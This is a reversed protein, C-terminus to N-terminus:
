IREVEIGDRRMMRAIRYPNTKHPARSWGRIRSRRLWLWEAAHGVAPAFGRGPNSLDFDIELYDDFQTHHQIIQIAGFVRTGRWGFAATVAPGGLPKHAAISRNWPALCRFPGHSNAEVWDTWEHTARILCRDERPKGFLDIPPARFHKRWGHFCALFQLETRFKRDAKKAQRNRQQRM